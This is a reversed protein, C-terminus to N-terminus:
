PRLYAAPRHAARERRVSYQIEGVLPSKEAPLDKAVESGVHNLDFRRSARARSPEPREKGVLWPRVAREVPPGVVAVLAADGEIPTTVLPPRDQELEHLFGVKEDLGFGWALEFLVPEAERRERGDVRLEDVDRDAREALVPRLHVVGIGIEHDKGGAPRQKEGAVVIPRRHTERRYRLGVEMSAGISCEASEHRMVLADPGAKPLV